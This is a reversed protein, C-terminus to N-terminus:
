RFSLPKPAKGKPLDTVNSASVEPKARVAMPWLPAGLALGGALASGTKLFARRSHLMALDHSAYGCTMEPNTQDPDTSM